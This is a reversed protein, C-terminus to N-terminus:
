SARIWTDTMTLASADLATPAALYYNNNNIMFLTDGRTDQLENAWTGASNEAQLNTWYNQDFNTLPKYYSNGNSDTYTPREDIQEGSTGDYYSSDLTGVVSTCQGNACVLFNAQNNSTQYATYTHIPMGASIPLNTIELEPVNCGPNDTSCAHLYEFWANMSGDGRMDTGEQLLGGNGRGVGGLGSWSSEDTDTTGCGCDHVGPQTWDGQVAVYQSDPYSVLGSWNYTLLAARPSGGAAAPASKTTNRGAVLASLNYRNTKCFAPSVMTRYSGWRNQWQILAQQDAPKAPFGYLTLETNSATAPAFTDPPIRSEITNGDITFDYGYGGDGLTRSSTIHLPTEGSPCTPDPMTPASKGPAASAPATGIIGLGVTLLVVVLAVSMTKISTNVTEDRIM